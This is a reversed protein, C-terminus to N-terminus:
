KEKVIDIKRFVIRDAAQYVIRFELGRAALEGTVPVEARVPGAGDELVGRGLKVERQSGCCFYGIEWTAAPGPQRSEVDCHMAVAYRGEPLSLYPGYALFAGKPSGALAVRTHEFIEGTTGNLCWGPIELRGDRELLERSLGLIPACERRALRIAKTSPNYALIRQNGFTLEEDPDGLKTVAAKRNVDVPQQAIVFTYDPAPKSGDTTGTYWFRNSVWPNPEMSPLVSLARLGQRSFLTVLRAEWYGAAGTQLHLRAAQADLYRVFPPAYRHLPVAAAPVSAAYVAPILALAAAAARRLRQPAPRRVLALTLLLAWGFAGEYFISHLYHNASWGYDKIEVLGNSGGVIIAGASSLGSLASFVLFFVVMQPRGTAVKGLALRRVLRLWAGLAVVLWCAASLHLLDWHAFHAGMGRLFTGLATTFRDITFGSQASIDTVSFCVQNLLRGALIGGWSAVLPPLVARFRFLGIWVFLLAAVTMAFAMQPIFMPDSMGGAISILAAAALLLRGMRPTFGGRFYRICVAAAPMVLALTGVHTQPQFLKWISPYYDEIRWAACLLFGIGVGLTLVDALRREMVGVARWCLQFGLILIAFQVLGDLMNAMVVNRTLAYVAGTVPVDPFWCPAIGFRWGSLPYGDRVVDVFLHVPFLTDSNFWLQRVGEGAGALRRWLAAYAFLLGAWGYLVPNTRLQLWLWATFDRSRANM